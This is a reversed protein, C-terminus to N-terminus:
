NIWYETQGDASTGMVEVREWLVMKELIPAWDKSDYELGWSQSCSQAVTIATFMQGGRSRLFAIMVNEIQDKSQNMPQITTQKMNIM